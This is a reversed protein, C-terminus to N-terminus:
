SDSSGLDGLDALDPLDGGGLDGLDALEPLDSTDGMSALDPLDDGGGGLDGLDALDGAMDGLDGLDGLDGMGGMDGLDPAPSADITVGGLGDGGPLAKPAAGLSAGMDDGMEALDDAGLRVARHGGSMGLRGYTVVGGEIDEVAIRGLAERPIPILSGETLNMVQALSMEVRHLTASLQAEAGMVHASLDASFAGGEASSVARKASVDFPLYLVLNGKKAGRGLDLSVTFKRYAINELTLPIARAEPFAFAYRYGTLAHALPLEAEAAGEELLEFVRDIFDACMIADTRTPLREDPVRTSVKGTTQIEILASLAGPDMTALGYRGEPGEVMAMLDYQGLAEVMPELTIRAEEPPGAVIVLAAVDEGAQMVANRLVRAPTPAGIEPPPRGAGSKRRMASLGDMDMDNAM